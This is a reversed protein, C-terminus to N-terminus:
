FEQITRAIIHDQLGKTLDVFYASYGAVRVVLNQYKEPDAQAARLTPTDVINFQIHPVGMAHWAKLYNKFVPRMEGTVSNPAFRQNLLHNYTKVPSIKAASRLVATPGCHDADIAPALSSDAFYGGDYRGDPTAPTDVSLGYTASVASGEGRMPYGYFTKVKAMAAQGGEQVAIAVEDAYPDDNGYKPANLCWQRVDEHGEWNKDMIAILEPLSIKKDDFCLKRVATISDAVNASGITQCFCYCMTDYQWKKCEQGREICGDLVASYFPRPIYQIYLDMSTNEVEALRQSFFTVQEEYAHLLDTWDKFTAPDATPAGFQEGDPNKGQHLAYWLCKPFVFYGESRHTMNKGPIEMYVCGSVSYNMADDHPINWAELMPITKEDNFLSPYGIGTTITDIAADYIDEPTNDHIRMCLSPENMKMEASAELVIKTLENTVDKGNEDTGGITIAQLSAVGGYVSSVTPSYVLGLENFKVYLMEVLEKAEDRTLRGEAVDKEYYKGFLKDFRIGIGLTSFEFFRVMHIFWFSQVAELFTRPSEGPVRDCGEAITELMAKREPDAEKAALERACEAYRHALGILSVLTMRSSQLFEKQEIYNHPITEEIEAMRADINAIYGNLGIEFIKEYNPIGLESLHSWLYVGEYKYYKTLKPGMKAKQIDSMSRGDWYKCIEALEARGADDLLSEGEPSNVLRLVSKWNLDIPHFLGEPEETSWGVIKEHPMIYVKMNDLVNCLAKARRIIMAEGETKKMSETMLRSRQLDLKIGPRYMSGAEKVNGRKINRVAKVVMKEKLQDATLVM